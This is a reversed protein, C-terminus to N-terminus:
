KINGTVMSHGFRFAAVIFENTLRPDLNDDENYGEYYRSGTRPLLDYAAAMSKGILVPLYEDYIVHTYLANCIRRSEKIKVFICSIYLFYFFICVEFLISDNWHPNMLVLQKAISNHLRVFITHLLALQPNENARVDGSLYCGETM